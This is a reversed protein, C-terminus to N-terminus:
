ALGMANLPEVAPEDHFLGSLFPSGGILDGAAVTLSNGGPATSRLAALESALYEAGGVPTQSPDLTKSLPPDGAELHGHFDNFSLLQVTTLNPNGQGPAAGAFAPTGAVLAAVATVAIGAGLVRRHTTTM